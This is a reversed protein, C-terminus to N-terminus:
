VKAFNTLWIKLVKFSQGLSQAGARSCLLSWNFYNRLCNSKELNFRKQRIRSRDRESAAVKSFKLARM